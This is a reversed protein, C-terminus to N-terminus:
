LNMTKVAFVYEEENDYKALKWLGSISQWLMADNMEEHNTLYICLAQRANTANVYEIFDGNCNLIKYVEM